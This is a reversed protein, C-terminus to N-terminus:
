TTVIEGRDLKSHKGSMHVVHKKIAQVNKKKVLMESSKWILERPSFTTSRTLRKINKLLPVNM